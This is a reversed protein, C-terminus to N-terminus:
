SLSLQGCKWMPIPEDMLMLPGYVAITLDPGPTRILISSLRRPISDTAFIAIVIHLIAWHNIDDFLSFLTWFCGRLFDLDSLLLIRLSHSQGAMDTNSFSDGGIGWWGVTKKYCLLSLLVAGQIVAALGKLNGKRDM